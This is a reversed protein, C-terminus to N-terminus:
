QQPVPIERLKGTESIVVGNQKIKVIRGNGFTDGEKLVIGNIIALRLDESVVLLTIKPIAQPPPALSELSVKPFEKRVIRIPSKLKEPIFIKKSEPVEFRYPFEAVALERQSAIGKFISDSLSNSVIISLVIFIYPSLFFLAFRWSNSEGGIKNM